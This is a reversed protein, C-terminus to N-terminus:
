WSTTATCCSGSRSAASTRSSICPKRAARRELRRPQQANPAIDDPSLNALKAGPVALLAQREGGASPFSVDVPRQSDEEAGPILAGIGRGLGTRKPTAM